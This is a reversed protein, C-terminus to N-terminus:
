AHSVYVEQSMSERRKQLNSMRVPSAERFANNKVVGASGSSVDM